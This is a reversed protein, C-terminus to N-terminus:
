LLVSKQDNSLESKESSLVGERTQGAKLKDDESTFGLLRPQNREWSLGSSSQPVFLLDEKQFRGSWKTWSVLGSSSQPIFLLDEKQFRGSWKTWFLDSNFVYSRVNPRWNLEM